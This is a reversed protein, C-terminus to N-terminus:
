RRDETDRLVEAITQPPGDNWLVLYVAPPLLGALALVIWSGLSSAGLVTFISLACACWVASVSWRTAVSPFQTLM